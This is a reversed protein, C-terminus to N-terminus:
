CDRPTSFTPSRTRSIRAGSSWARKGKLAGPIQRTVHGNDGVGTGVYDSGRIEVTVSAGADHLAKADAWMAPASAPGQSDTAADPMDERM